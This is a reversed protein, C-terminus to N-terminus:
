ARQKIRARHRMEERLVRALKMLSRRPNKLRTNNPKRIYFAHFSLHHRLRSCPYFTYQRKKGERRVGGGVSGAKRRRRRRREAGSRRVKELASKLERFSQPMRPYANGLIRM